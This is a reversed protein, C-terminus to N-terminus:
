ESNKFMASVAIKSKAVSDEKPVEMIYVKDADEVTLSKVDCPAETLTIKNWVADNNPATAKIFYTRTTGDFKEQTL